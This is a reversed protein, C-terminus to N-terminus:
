INDQEIDSFKRPLIFTTSADGTAREKKLGEGEVALFTMLM